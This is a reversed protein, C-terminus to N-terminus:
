STKIRYFQLKVYSAPLIFISKPQPLTGRQVGPGMLHFEVVVIIIIIVTISAIMVVAHCYFLFLLFVLSFGSVQRTRPHQEQQNFLFGLPHCGPIAFGRRGLVDTPPAALAEGPKDEPGQRTSWLQAQSDLRCETSKEGTFSAQPEQLCKGLSSLLM